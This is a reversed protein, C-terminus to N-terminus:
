LPYNAGGCVDYVRLLGPLQSLVEIDKSHDTWWQDAGVCVDECFIDVQIQLEGTAFGNMHVKWHPPPLVFHIRRLVERATQTSIDDVGEHLFACRLAYADSGSLWPVMEDSKVLSRGMYKSMAYNEWWAKYRTGVKSRPSQLKGCIDPLALALALAAYWNQGSVAARTAHTLHQM